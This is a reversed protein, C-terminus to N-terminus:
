NPASAGNATRGGSITLGTLSVTVASIDFVRDKGAGSITTDTAGAGVIDLKQTIDLDGTFATAEGTGVKTLAYTGAPVVIKDTASPSGAPCEGTGALGTNSNAARVAERLSCEGNAAIQDSETTVTMTTALSPPAAVALGGLALLAMLILARARAPRYRVAAQM